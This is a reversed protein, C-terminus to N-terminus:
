LNQAFQSQLWQRSFLLVYTIGEHLSNVTHLIKGISEPVQLVVTMKM